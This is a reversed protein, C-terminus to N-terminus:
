DNKKNGFDSCPYNHDFLLLSIIFLIIFITFIALLVDIIALSLQM